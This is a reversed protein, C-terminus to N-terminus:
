LGAQGVSPDTPVRAARIVLALTEPCHLFKHLDDRKNRSQGDDQSKRRGGRGLLGRLVTIRVLSALHLALDVVDGAPPPEPRSPRRFGGNVPYSM